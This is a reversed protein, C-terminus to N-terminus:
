YLLHISTLYLNFNKGKKLQIKKKLSINNLLSLFFFAYKFLLSFGPFQFSFGFVVSPFIRSTFLIDSLESLESLIWSFLGYFNRLTRHDQIPVEAEAKKVHSPLPIPKPAMNPLIIGCIKM